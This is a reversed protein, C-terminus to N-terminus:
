KFGSPPVFHGASKIGVVDLITFISTAVEDVIHAPGVILGQIGVETGVM